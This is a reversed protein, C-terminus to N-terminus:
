GLHIQSVVKRNLVDEMAMPPNLARTTTPVLGYLKKSLMPKRMLLISRTSYNARALPRAWAIASGKMKMKLYKSLNALNM